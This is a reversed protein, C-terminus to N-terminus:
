GVSLPGGMMAVAFRLVVEAAGLFAAVALDAAVALEKVDVLAVRPRLEFAAAPEASM